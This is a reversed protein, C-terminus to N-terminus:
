KTLPTLSICLLLKKLILYCTVHIPLTANVIQYCKIIVKAIDIRSTESFVSLKDTQCYCLIIEKNKM